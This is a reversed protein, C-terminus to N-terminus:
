DEKKNSMTQSNKSAIYRDKITKSSLSSLAISGDTLFIASSLANGNTFDLVKEPEKTKKTQIIKKIPAASTNGCIANVYELSVYNDFGINLM